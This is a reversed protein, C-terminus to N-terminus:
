HEILDSFEGEIYKRRDKESDRQVQREDKGEKNWRELIAEIYKWKRVNNEVAIQIAEEIWKAPYQEEAELLTESILPTLPGINAEYLQFINPAEIGLEIPRKPDGSPTWHGKAIAKMAAQGRPTNLFYLYRSEGQLEIEARLLWGRTVAQELSKQLITNAKEIDSNLGQMFIADKAFDEYELFRFRGEMQDIQWFAYLLTKLEGLNDITPLLQSFFPAPIRTFETKGAPFGSFKKM